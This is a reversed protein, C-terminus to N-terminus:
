SSKSLVGYMNERHDMAIEEVKRLGLLYVVLGAGAVVAFAPVLLWRMHLTDGVFILGWGLAAFALLIGMSM